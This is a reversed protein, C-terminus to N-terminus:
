LAKINQRSFFSFSVTNCYLGRKKHTDREDDRSFLLPWPSTSTMNRDRLRSRENMRRPRFREAIRQTLWAKKLDKRKIKTDREMEWSTREGNVTKRNRLCQQEDHRWDHQKPTASWTKRIVNTVMKTSSLLVHMMAAAVLALSEAAGELRELPSASISGFNTELTIM